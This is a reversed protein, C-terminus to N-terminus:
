TTEKTRATILGLLGAVLGLGGVVLAIVALTGEGDDDADDAAPAVAAAPTAAVTGDEGDTVTVVAAPSDSDPAGIWRVVEGDDYTQIAKFVLEDGAKGPIRVSIPFDVFQGPGIGADGEATWTIRKVGETIEGDPTQIPTDLAARQVEVKWGPVPAYSVAAFGDPLQVDVKTTRADDRESPVRVNEVVYAGAPATDPQVTVHAGATSPLVAVAALATALLTHVRPM